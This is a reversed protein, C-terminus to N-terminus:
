ISRIWFSAKGYYHDKSLDSNDYENMLEKCDRVSLLRPVLAYGKNNIENTITEWNM